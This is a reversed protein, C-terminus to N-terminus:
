AGDGVESLGMCLVYFSLPCFSYFSLIVFMLCFLFLYLLFSVKLNTAGTNWAGVLSKELM